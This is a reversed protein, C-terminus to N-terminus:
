QDDVNGMLYMEGTPQPMGGKPELTIAFADASKEDAKNVHDIKFFKDDGTSVSFVGASVPKNDIILWLQYEKNPPVVPLHSVQLLAQQNKTDWIVKGYGEPNVEMGSLMVVEVDRAELIGLIEEKQDVENMLRSIETKQRAILEEKSNIESSLSFSFFTLSLSIILLAFSVAATFAPWNIRNESGTTEMAEGLEVSSEQHKGESEDSHIATKLRDKVAPLPEENKVTFALQNSLEEFVDRDGSQIRKMLEVEDDANGNGAKGIAAIM